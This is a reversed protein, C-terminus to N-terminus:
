KTDELLVASNSGLIGICKNLLHTHTDARTMEEVLKRATQDSIRCQVTGESRESTGITQSLNSGNASGSAPTCTARTVDIWLGGTSSTDTLITDAKRREDKTDKLLKRYDSEIKDKEKRLTAEKAKAETMQAKLTEAAKLNITGREREWAIKEDGHAKDLRQVEESHKTKLNSITVDSKNTSYGHGVAFAAALAIGAGILKLYSM